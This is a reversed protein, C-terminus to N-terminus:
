RLSRLFLDTEYLMTGSVRLMNFGADRVQQLAERYADRTGGLSAVDLPAWCSGRAFCAVDNIRLAFGKGDAGRDIAVDRFGVRGLSATTTGADSEVIVTVDYLPSAGHTHPWWREVNPVLATAALTTRAASPEIPCEHKMRAAACRRARFRRSPGRWCIDGRRRGGSRDHRDCEAYALYLDGVENARTELFVGRWPGIAPAAPTWGPMRGLWSTRWWRLQQQEVMRTRWRPRPRKAELAKQLSAFRIMLTNDKKLLATADVEHSLWMSDSTLIPHDNLWVQAITALGAFRLVHRIPPADDPSTFECRYWWDDGDINPPSEWDWEGAAILASVVTGPVTAPRWARQDIADRIDAPDKASGATVRAVSWQGALERITTGAIAIPKPTRAEVGM